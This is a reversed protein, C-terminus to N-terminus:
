TIIKMNQIATQTNNILENSINEGAKLFSAVNSKVTNTLNEHVSTIMKNNKEQKELEYKYQMELKQLNNSEQIKQLESSVVNRSVVTTTSDAFSNVFASATNTVVNTVKSVVGTVVNSVANLANDAAKVISSWFGM